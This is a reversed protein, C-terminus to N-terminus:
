AEKSMLSNYEMDSCAETKAEQFCYNWDEAVNLSSLYDKYQSGKYKFAYYLAEDMRFLAFGLYLEPEHYWVSYLEETDKYEYLKALESALLGEKPYPRFSFDEDERAKEKSHFFSCATLMTYYFDLTVQRFAEKDKAPMESVSVYPFDPVRGEDEGDYPQVSFGYNYLRWWTSVLIKARLGALLVAEVYPLFASRFLAERTDLFNEAQSELLRYTKDTAEEPSDAIRKYIPEGDEVISAQVAEEETQGGQLKRLISRHFRAEILEQVGQGYEDPNVFLAYSSFTDLLTERSPTESENKLRQFQKKSM